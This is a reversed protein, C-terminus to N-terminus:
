RLDGRSGRSSLRIESVTSSDPTRSSLQTSVGELCTVPGDLPAILGEIGDWGRTDKWQFGHLREFLAFVAVRESTSVDPSSHYVTGTLEKYRGKRQLVQQWVSSQNEDHLRHLRLLGEIELALLLRDSM